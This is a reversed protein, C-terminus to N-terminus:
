LNKSISLYAKSSMENLRSITRKFEFATNKDQELKDLEVEFSAALKVGKDYLTDILLIFRKAANSNVKNFQPINDIMITHFANAIKLYDRAGLPNDNIKQNCIDDFDFRAIGFASAPIKIKRGLSDIFAEKAKQGGSLQLFLRDMSTKAKVKDGFYFVEQKELKDLRFDKASKLELIQVHSILLDIFSLFLQRNLGNKYLNKPAVNSTVVIVLGAHFLKEFLRSLLMANTIDSVHFEDFCLLRVDKIIPKIIHPIPDRAKENNKRFLAIESHIEDMFEHFHVRRKAKIPVEEFFMDMLLTKGRGVDGWLYIGKPVSKRSKFFAGLGGKKQELALLDASLSDLLQVAEFQAADPTLAKENLLKSYIDRVM